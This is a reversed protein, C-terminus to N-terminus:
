SRRRGTEGSRKVPRMDIPVAVPTQKIFRLPQAALDIKLIARNGFGAQGIAAMLGVQIARAPVKQDHIRVVANAATRPEVFM